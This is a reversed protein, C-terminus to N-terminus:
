FAIILNMKKAMDKNSMDTYMYSWPVMFCNLEVQFVNTLYKEPLWSESQDLVCVKRHCPVERNHEDQIENRHSRLWWQMWLLGGSRGHGQTDLDCVVSLSEWRLFHQFFLRVCAIVGCSIRVSREPQQKYGWDDHVYIKKYQAQACM